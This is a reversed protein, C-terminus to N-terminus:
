LSGVWSVVHEISIYNKIIKDYIYINIKSNTIVNYYGRSSYSGLAFKYPSHRPYNMLMVQYDNELESLEWQWYLTDVSM